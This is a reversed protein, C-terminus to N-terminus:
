LKLSTILADLRRLREADSETAHAGPAAASDTAPISDLIGSDDDLISTVAGLERYMAGAAAHKNTSLAEMESKKILDLM